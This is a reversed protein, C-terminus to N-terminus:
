AVSATVAATSLYVIETGDAEFEDAEVYASVGTLGAAGIAASWDDETWGPACSVVILDGATAVSVAEIGGSVKRV